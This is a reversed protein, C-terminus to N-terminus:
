TARSRARGCAPAAAGSGRVIRELRECGNADTGTRRADGRATPYDWDWYPFARPGARRRDAPLEGAPAPLHRRVAHSRAPAFRLPHRVADRSGLAAARRAAALAKVESALYFTGDHVTYYLPKIGFRDRAAFLQGIASTGFRSRSSAACRTCRARAAIRSCTCRSRATRDRESRTARASSSAGSGSSTTSSATPSSASGATRTRRDASRRDDLDIISLRAHGLGARADPSVWVHQADPGRHRLQRTARALPEHTIGRHKSLAAIIGCM